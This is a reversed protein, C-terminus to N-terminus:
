DVMSTRLAKVSDAIAKFESDTVPMLNFDMEEDKEM